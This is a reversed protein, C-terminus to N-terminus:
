LLSMQKTGQEVLPDLGLATLFAVRNLGPDALLRRVHRFKLFLWGGQEVAAQLRPDRGLKFQLLGARGGPLVIVHHSARHAEDPHLTNHVRGLVWPAVIASDTIVFHFAIVRSDPDRWELEAGGTVKYGLKKGLTILEEGVQVVDDARAFSDDEDRLRWLGHTEEGYSFLCRRVLNAGPTLWGNFTTCLKHELSTLSIHTTSELLRMVEREVRDALSEAVNDAVNDAVNAEDKLWWRANAPRLEAEPDGGAAIPLLQSSNLCAAEISDQIINLPDTAVEDAAVRLLHDHALTVFAAGSITNWRVVEGRERIVAIAAAEAGSRLALGLREPPELTLRDPQFTFQAEAPDARLAHAILSFHAADAATLAAGVFGPEAEPLLAVFRGEDRLLKQAVSFTARLAQEHWAWDYRRRRIFNKLQAVAGPGWLWSAWLATLTWLVANPRPLAAIMMPITKPKLLGQANLERLSGEFLTVGAATSQCLDPLSRLRPGDDAAAGQFKGDQVWRELMLWLNKEHFRVHPQLTRPRQGELSLGEDYAMLLLLDLARREAPSLKLAGAKHTLTFIVQLARPTYADLVDATAARDPDDGPTIRDLAWYFHPGRVPYRAALDIDAQAAPRTKTEHCDPCDYTIEALAGKDWLYTQVEVMAGCDACTSRYCNRMYTELRIPGVPADALRTLATRLTETPLPDIAALLASRLIPNSNALILRCGLRTLELAARPSQGFPDIVIDGPAVAKEAYATVIGEGLPPLHRSLPFPSAENGPLFMIPNYGLRM